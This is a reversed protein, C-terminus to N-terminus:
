FRLPVPVCHRLLCVWNFITNQHMHTKFQAGRESPSSSTAHTSHLPVLSITKIPQRTKGVHNSTRYNDRLLAPFWIEWKHPLGQLAMTPHSVYAHVVKPPYFGHAIGAPWAAQGRKEGMGRQGWSCLWRKCKCPANHDLLCLLGKAGLHFWTALCFPMAM